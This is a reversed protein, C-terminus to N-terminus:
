DKSLTGECGPDVQALLVSSLLTCGCQKCPNSEHSIVVEPAYSPHFMLNLLKATDFCFCLRCSSHFVKNALIRGTRGCVVIAKDMGFDPLVFGLADYRDLIGVVNVDNNEYRCSTDSSPLHVVRIYCLSDLPKHM